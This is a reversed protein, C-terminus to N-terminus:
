RYVHVLLTKEFIIHTICRSDGCQDEDYSCYKGKNLYLDRSGSLILLIVFVFSSILASRNVDSVCILFARKALISLVVLLVFRWPLIEFFIIRRPRNSSAKTM